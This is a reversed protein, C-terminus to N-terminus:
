QPREATEVSDWLKKAAPDIWYIGTRARGRYHSYAYHQAALVPTPTQRYKEAMQRTMDCSDGLFEETVNEAWAKDVEADRVFAEWAMMNMDGPPALAYKQLLRAPIDAKTNGDM